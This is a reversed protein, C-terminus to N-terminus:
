PACAGTTNAPVTTLAIQGTASRYCWYDGNVVLTGNFTSGDNVAKGSIAIQLCPNPGTSPCSAPSTFYAYAAGTGDRVGAPVSWASTAAAGTTQDYGTGGFAPPYTSFDTSYIGASSGFSALDSKTRANDSAAIRQAPNIAVIVAVALIALIVIVVLLEVLTFGSSLVNTRSVQSLKNLKLQTNLM